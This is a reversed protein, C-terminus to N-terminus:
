AQDEHEKRVREVTAALAKDQMVRKDFEEVKRQSPKWGPPRLAEIALWCQAIEHLKDCALCRKKGRQRDTAASTTSRPRKRQNESKDGTTKAANTAGAVEEDLASHDGAFRAQFASGRTTLVTTAVPYQSSYWSRFASGVAQFNFSDKGETLRMEYTTAFIQAIPKVAVCFDSLWIESNLTQPLNAHIGEAMATEWQLIWTTVAKASSSRIPTIATQYRLGATRRAMAHTPKTGDRLIRIWERTTADVPLQAKKADSISMQIKNRAEILQKDQQHYEKMQSEYIQQATAFDRREAQTLESFRTAGAHYETFSPAEPQPLPQKEPGDPDLLAWIQTRLGSRLDRYWNEWDQPDILITANTATASAM